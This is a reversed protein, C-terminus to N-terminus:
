HGSFAPLYLVARVNDGGSLTATGSIKYVPQLVTATPSDLLYAIDIQDLDINKITDAPLYKFPTEEGGLDILVASGISSNIEEYTKIPYEVPGKQVSDFVILQFSHVGGDKTIEIYNTNETATVSIIEYDLSMPLINLHYLSFDKDTSKVFYKKSPDEKLYQTSDFSFNNATLLGSDVLFKGAITKINEDSFRKDSTKISESSGYRIKSSKTYAFLTGSDKKWFYTLGEQSDNLKKVPESFGVFSAVRNLYTDTFVKKAVVLLPLKNVTKFQEVPIKLSSSIDGKYNQVLKPEVPIVVPNKKPSEKLYIRSLWAISLVFVIVFVAIFLKKM